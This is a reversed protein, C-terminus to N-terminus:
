HEPFYKEYLDDNTLVKFVAVVKNFDKKSLLDKLTNEISSKIPDDGVCHLAHYLDGSEVEKKAIKNITAKEKKTLKAM